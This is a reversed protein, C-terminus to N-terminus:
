RPSALVVTLSSSSMNATAPMLRVIGLDQGLLAAEAQQGAPFYVTDQPVSGRWDSVAAVNWGAGRAQGAVRAALGGIGIQNYVGVAISRTATPEVTPETTPEPKPKKTAKATPESKESKQAKPKKTATPEASAGKSVEASAAPPDDSRVVSIIAVGGLAGLVLWVAPLVILSWTPRPRGLDRRDEPREPEPEHEM